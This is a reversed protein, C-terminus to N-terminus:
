PPGVERVVGGVDAPIAQNTAVVVASELCRERLLATLAERGAESLHSYPEDLLVFPAPRRLIAELQLRKAEGTSLRGVPTRPDAFDPRLADNRPWGATLADVLRDWDRVRVEPPLRMGPHYYARRPDGEGGVELGIRGERSRGRGALIRLLSSKGAGNEGVLWAIAGAAHDWDFGRLIWRRYHRIGLGEVHIRPIAPM